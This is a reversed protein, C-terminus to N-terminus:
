VAGAPFNGVEGLEDVPGMAGVYSIKIKMRIAVKQPNNVLIRQTVAGGSMPPIMSSSQNELKLQLTSPVAIQFLFNQMPSPTSNTATLTIQLVNPMAPNKAFDFKVNLGNKDWAVMSPIGVAGVQPQAAAPAPAAPAGGLLDGLLDTTSTTAPAAPAPAASIPGGLLDMLGSGSSEPAPAPAPGGGGLLDLLGGGAPAPAAAMPAAPAGGGLDLGLLDSLGGGTPQAAAAPPAVAPASGGLLDGLLDGSSAAPAAAVPAAAAPPAAAVASAVPIKREMVPMRELLQPRKSDFANFITSYEVSRQQMELVVSDAHQGIMTRIRGEAGSFRSSLKMTATIVIGNMIDNSTTADMVKQLLDLVDSVAVPAEPPELASQGCLLDGFEGICWACVMTVTAFHSKAKLIKYCRQVIYPQLAANGAAALLQIYDSFMEAPVHQEGQELTALITDIHWRPSPAYKEAVAFIETVIYKKFQNDAITM